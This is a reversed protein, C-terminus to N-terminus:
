KTDPAPSSDAPRSLRFDKQGSIKGAQVILRYVADPDLPEAHADPVEPRMGRIRQGYQFSGIPVSNSDSILHWLPIPHDNTALVAVPVVKIETFRCRTDFGFTVMPPEDEKAKERHRLQNGRPRTTYHILLPKQRFWDTFFFVYAAALV